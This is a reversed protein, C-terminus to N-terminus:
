GAARAQVIDRRVVGPSRRASERRARAVARAKRRREVQAQSGRGPVLVPPAGRAPSDYSSSEQSCLVSLRFRGGEGAGRSGRNWSGSVVGGTAASPVLGVLSVPFSGVAWAGCGAGVAGAPLSDHQPFLVPRTAFRDFLSLFRLFRNRCSVLAERALGGVGRGKGRDLERGRRRGEGTGRPGCSRSGLVARGTAASPVLSSLSVPFFLRGLGVGREWRERLRPTTSPSSCLVPPLVTLRPCSVCFGIAAPFWLNARLIGSGAGKGRDLERGRPRGEGPGRPGRNRLGLVAGPGGGAEAKRPFSTSARPGSWPLVM